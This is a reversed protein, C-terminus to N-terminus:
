MRKSLYDSDKMAEKFSSIKSIIVVDILNKIGELNPIRSDLEDGNIKSQGLLNMLLRVKQALNFELVGDVNCVVSNWFDKLIDTNQQNTIIGAMFKLTVLLRPENRHTSIYILVDLKEKESGTILKDTM